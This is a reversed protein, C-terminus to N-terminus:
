QSLVPVPTYGNPCQKGSCDIKGSLNAYNSVKVCQKRASDYYYGPPCPIRGTANAFGSSNTQTTPKNKNYLYYAVGVLAVGGLIYMTNKKM